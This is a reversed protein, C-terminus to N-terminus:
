KIKNVKLNILSSGYIIKKRLFVTDQTFDELKLDKNGYYPLPSYWKHTCTKQIYTKKLYIEIQGRLSYFIYDVKQGLLKKKINTFNAL